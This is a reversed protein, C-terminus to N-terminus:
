RPPHGSRRSPAVAAVTEDLLTDLEPANSLSCLQDFSLSGEAFLEGVLAAMQATSPHIPQRPPLVARLPAAATRAHRPVPEAYDSTAAPGDLWDPTFDFTM